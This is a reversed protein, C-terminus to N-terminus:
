SKPSENYRPLNFLTYDILSQYKKFLEEPSFIYWDKAHPLSIACPVIHCNVSGSMADIYNFSVRKQFEFDAEHIDQKGQLYERSDRDKAEEIRKKSVDSPVDFFLNLDPYPLELFGWEFGIIWQRIARREPHDNPYKACQYAINSYVYRDLLVVDNNKMALKLEDLFKFRDMAYITAVFYPDVDTISGLEGRLFRAILDSFKNHNYMPFHYHVFKLGKDEFYKKILEVQTSKGSADCGELCILKSM